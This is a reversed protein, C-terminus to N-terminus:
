QANLIIHEHDHHISLTQQRVTIQSHQQNGFQKAFQDKAITEQATAQGHQLAMKSAYTAVEVTQPECTIQRGHRSYTGKYTRTWCQSVTNEEILQYSHDAHMTLKLTVSQHQPYQKKGQWQGVIKVQRPHQQKQSTQDAQRTEHQIHTFTVTGGVILLGVIVLGISVLWKKRQKLDRDGEM